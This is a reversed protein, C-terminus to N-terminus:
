FSRFGLCPFDPILDLLSLEIIFFITFHAFKSIFNCKAFLFWITVGLLCHYKKPISQFIQWFSMFFWNMVLFLFAPFLPAKVYFFFSNTMTTQEQSNTLNRWWLQPEEAPIRLCPITVNFCPRLHIPDPDMVIETEAEGVRLRNVIALDEYTLLDWSSSSRQWFLGCWPWWSSGATQPTGM